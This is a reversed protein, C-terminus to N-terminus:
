LLNISNGQTFQKDAKNKTSLQIWDGVCWVLSVPIGQSKGVITLSHTQDIRQFYWLSIDPAPGVPSSSKDNGERRSDWFKAPSSLLYLWDPDATEVSIWSEGATELWWIRSIQFLTLPRHPLAAEVQQYILLKNVSNKETNQNLPQSCFSSLLPVPPLPFMALTVFIIDVCCDGEQWCM